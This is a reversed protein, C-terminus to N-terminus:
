YTRLVTKISYEPWSYKVHKKGRKVEEAAFTKSWALLTEHLRTEQCKEVSLPQKRIRQRCISNTSESSCTCASKLSFPASVPKAHFISM